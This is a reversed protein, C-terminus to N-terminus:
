YKKKRKIVKKKKGIVALSFDPDQIVAESCFHEKHKYLAM